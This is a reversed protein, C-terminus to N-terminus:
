PERIGGSTNAVCGGSGRSSRPTAGGRTPRTGIWPISRSTRARSTVDVYSKRPVEHTSHIDVLKDNWRALLTVVEQLVRQSEFVPLSHRPTNDPTRADVWKGGEPMTVNAGGYTDLHVGGAYGEIDAFRQGGSIDLGIGRADRLEAHEYFRYLAVLEHDTAYVLPKGALVGILEAIFARASRSTGGGTRFVLAAIPGDALLSALPSM